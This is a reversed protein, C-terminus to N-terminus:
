KSLLNENIYDKVGNWGSGELIYSDTDIGAAQESLKRISFGEKLISFNFLGASIAGMPCGYVCRMCWACKTSTKMRGNEMVINQTPCNNQCWKCDTCKRGANLSKSFVIRGISNFGFSMVAQAPAAAKERRNEIGNIIDASIHAAAVPLVKLLLQNMNQPASFAFNSPMTIMAEYDIVCGKKELEKICHNRCTRNSAEDGGGSVSIVATKLMKLEPLTKIWRFIPRPADFSYVPYMVILRDAAEVAKNGDDLSQVKSLDLPLMQVLMSKEEFNKKIEEAAMKTGNTGSFYVIVINKM